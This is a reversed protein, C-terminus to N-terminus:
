KPYVTIVLPLLAFPPVGEVPDALILGTSSGGDLNLALELDLDSAVLFRSLQHLTYTGSSALVFLFRGQRDQAIVTRRAPAGDEDPYGIQNGPTVLMPFSQLGAKISEQVRFPRQPLWRLEANNETVTLMGGFGQYSTGYPMGEVIVAGTAEGSETFYGGNVVILAGTETMWDVLRQPEGPHYGVGFRFYDSDIRLMYFKEPVAAGERQTTILRRELGPRLVQWGTDPIVVTTSLMRPVTPRVVTMGQPPESAQAGTLEVSPAAQSEPFEGPGPIRCGVMILAVTLILLAREPQHKQPM